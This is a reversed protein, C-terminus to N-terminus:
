EQPNLLWSAWREPGPAGAQDVEKNGFLKSVPDFSPYACCITASCTADVNRMSTPTSLSADGWKPDLESGAPYMLPISDLPPGFTGYTAPLIEEWRRLLDELLEGTRAMEDPDITQVRDLLIIRIREVLQSDPFPQPRERNQASGWLRVLTAVLAHLARARVPAAFPTV